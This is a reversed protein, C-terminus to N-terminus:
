IGIRALEWFAAHNHKCSWKKCTCNDVYFLNRWPVSNASISLAISSPSSNTEGEITPALAAM